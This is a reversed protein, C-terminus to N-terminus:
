AMYVYMCVYMCVCGCVCVYTQVINRTHINESSLTQYQIGTPTSKGPLCQKYGKDGEKCEKTAQTRTCHQPRTPKGRDWRSQNPM